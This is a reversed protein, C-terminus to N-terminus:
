NVEGIREPAPRERRDKEILYKAFIAFAVAVYPLVFLLPLFALSLILLPFFSVLLSAAVRKQHKMIEASHRIAPRIKISADEVFLFGVIMYKMSLVLALVGGCFALLACLGMMVLYFYPLYGQTGGYYVAAGYLLMAPLTLVFTYCVARLAVSFLVRLSKFYKKVGTYYYFLLTIPSPKGSAIAYAWKLFGFWFPTIIFFEILLVVALVSYRIVSEYVGHAMLWQVADMQSLMSLYAETGLIGNVTKELLTLAINVCLLILVAAVGKSWQGRLANKANRKIYRNVTM